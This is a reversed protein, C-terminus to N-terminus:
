SPSRALLNIFLACQNVLVKPKQGFMWKIGKLHQCLGNRRDDVPLPLNYFFNGREAKNTWATILPVIISQKVLPSPHAPPQKNIQTLSKDTLSTELFPKQGANWKVRRQNERREGTHCVLPSILQWKRGCMTLASLSNEIMITRDDLTVRASVLRTKRVHRSLSEIDLLM